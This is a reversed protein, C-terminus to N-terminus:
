YLRYVRNIRNRTGRYVRDETVAYLPPYGGREKQDSHAGGPKSNQRLHSLCKFYQKVWDGIEWIWLHNPFKVRPSFYSFHLVSRILPFGRIVLGALSREYNPFVTFTTCETVFCMGNASHAHRSEISSCTETKKELLIFHRMDPITTDWILFKKRPPWIRM